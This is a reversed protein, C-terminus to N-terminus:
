ATTKKPPVFAPGDWVMDCAKHVTRQLPMGLMRMEVTPSQLDYRSVMVTHMRQFM